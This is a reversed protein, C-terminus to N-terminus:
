GSVSGWDCAKQISRCDRSELSKPFTSFRLRTLASYLGVALQEVFAVICSQLPQRKHLIRIMVSVEFTLSFYSGALFPPASATLAATNVQSM